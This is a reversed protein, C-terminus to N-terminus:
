SRNRKAVSTSIVSKWVQSKPALYKLRSAMVQDDVETAALETAVVTALGAAEDPSLQSIPEFDNQPALLGVGLRMNLTGASSPAPLLWARYGEIFIQLPTSPETAPYLSYDRGLDYSSTYTLPTVNGSSDAWWASMVDNIGGPYGSLDVSVPGDATQAAVAVSLPTASTAFGCSLNIEAISERVQQNIRYNSPNKQNPAPDGMPGPPTQEIALGKGLKVRCMDRLYPLTVVVM